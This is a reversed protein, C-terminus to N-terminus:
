SSPEESRITRRVEEEFSHSCRNGFTPRVALATGSPANACGGNALICPYPLSYDKGQLPVGFPPATEATKWGHGSKPLASAEKAVGREDCCVM